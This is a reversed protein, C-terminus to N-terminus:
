MIPNTSGSSRQFIDKSYREGKVKLCISCYYKSLKLNPHTYKKPYHKLIETFFPFNVLFKPFLYFIECYTYQDDYSIERNTAGQIWTNMFSILMLMLLGSIVLIIITQMNKPLAPTSYLATTGSELEPIISKITTQTNGTKNIYKTNPKKTRFIVFPPPPM